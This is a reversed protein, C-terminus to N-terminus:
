QMSQQKKTQDTFKEIDSDDGVDVFNEEDAKPHDDLQSRLDSKTKLIECMDDVRSGVDKQIINYLVLRIDDASFENSPLAANFYVCLSDHSLTELVQVFEAVLQKLQYEYYWLILRRDRSDKNGSSLEELKHLPHAESQRASPRYHTKMFTELTLLCQQKNDKKVLNLPEVFQLTHIADDQILLTMDAMRNGLTRLSVIVKLIKTETKSDKEKEYPEDEEILSKTYKALNLNQIFAEKNEDLTALMLYDQKTGRLCLVEGLPFGNKAEDSDDKDEEEPDETVTQKQMTQAQKGAARAKPPACFRTKCCYKTPPRSAPALHCTSLVSAEYRQLNHHGSHIADAGVAFSDPISCFELTYSNWEGEIFVKGECVGIFSVFENTKNVWYVSIHQTKVGASLIKADDPIVIEFGGFGGSLGSIG